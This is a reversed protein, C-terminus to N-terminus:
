SEENEGVEKRFGQFLKQVPRGIGQRTGQWDMRWTTALILRRFALGPVLRQNLTRYTWPM